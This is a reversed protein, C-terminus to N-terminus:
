IWGPRVFTAPPSTTARSKSTSYPVACEPSGSFSRETVARKAQVSETAFSPDLSGTFAAGLALLRTAGAPDVFLSLARDAFEYGTTGDVPWRPDLTEDPGLIKEVLIVPEQAGSPAALHARLRRLYQTPDALGDIHDVRVGAIGPHRVLARVTGHTREFVGRDEVRVGVLSGIDFFRRYNGETAGLRWSAPRYHQADLVSEAPGDPTHDAAPFVQGDIDIERTDDDLTVAGEALVQALPRDLSPVLVRGGHRDWDIDFVDADPSARGRRLVDWWWPNARDTAMHNPVVDLLARMRRSLLASVLEEFDEPGGLSPDLRSPDVVDYGHPSGPVAAWIPSLYLTEIGLDALYPVVAAAKRFGLGQLQLRYTSGLHPGNV